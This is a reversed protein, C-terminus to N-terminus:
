ARTCLTDLQDVGHSESIKTTTFRLQKQRALREALSKLGGLGIFGKFESQFRTQFHDLSKQQTVSLVLKCAQHISAIVCGNPITLAVANFRKQTM